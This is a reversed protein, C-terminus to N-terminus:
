TYIFIVAALVDIEPYSAYIRIIEELEEEGARQAWGEIAVFDCFEPSFTHIYMQLHMDLTIGSDAKKLGSRLTM